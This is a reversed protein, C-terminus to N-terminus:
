RMRAFARGSSQPTWFVSGEIMPRRPRNDWPSRHDDDRHVYM